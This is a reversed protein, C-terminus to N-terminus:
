PGFNSGFKFELKKEIKKNSANNPKEQHQFYSPPVHPVRVWPWTENWFRPTKKKKKPETQYAHSLKPALLLKSTCSSGLSLSPIGNWFSPNKENKKRALAVLSNDHQFYNLSAHPVRTWAWTGNWIWRQTWTKERKKTALAISSSKAGFTTQHLKCGLSLSMDWKPSLSSSM